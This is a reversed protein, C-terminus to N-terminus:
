DNNKLLFGQSRLFERLASVVEKDNETLKGKVYIDGNECFKLVETSHDTFFKIENKDSALHKGEEKNEM